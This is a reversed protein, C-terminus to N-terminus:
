AQVPDFAFLRLQENTGYQRYTSLYKYKQWGDRNMGMKHEWQKRWHDLKKMYWEICNINMAMEQAIDAYYQAGTSLYCEYMVKAGLKLRYLESTEIADLKNLKVALLADWDCWTDICKIRSRNKLADQDATYFEFYNKCELRFVGALYSFDDLRQWDFAEIKKISENRLKLELRQVPQSTDLGCLQWFKKIYPKNSKELEDSKIYGTMWKDSSRKGIDFGQLKRVGTHYTTITAKGKKGYVGRNWGEVIDMVQVGDLAIDLRTINRVKWGMAAFFDRSEQIPQYEYLVTNEIKVQILDPKIIEPSRPCCFVTAFKRGDQYVDYGFKFNLSGSPRKVLTYKGSGYDYSDLPTDFQVLEGQCMFELWDVVICHKTM